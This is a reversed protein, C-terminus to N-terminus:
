RCEAPVARMSLISRWPAITAAAIPAYGMPAMAFTTVTVAYGLVQALIYVIPELEQVIIGVQDDVILWGDLVEEGVALAVGVGSVSAVIM